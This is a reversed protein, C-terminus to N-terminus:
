AEERMAAGLVALLSSQEGLNGLRVSDDFDFIDTLSFSTVSMHLYSGLFDCLEQCENFPAIVIKNIVIYPFQSEFNDLSRQMELAIKEFIGENPEGDLEIRRTHFLEGGATFTLVALKPSFSLMALGRDKDELLAAINRQAMVRVDIAELQIGAAMLHNSVDAIVRNQTLVAYGYQTDAQSNAGPIDLIDITAQAIPYDVMDQVIWDIAQRLEDAPVNPKELEIMQYDRYSLVYSCRAKNLKFRQMMAKLAAKNKLNAAEQRAVMVMPKADRVQVVHALWTTTDNARIAWWGKNNTRNLWNM